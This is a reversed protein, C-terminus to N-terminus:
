TTATTTPRCPPSSRTSTSSATAPNPGSDNPPASEHYSLGQAPKRPRPLRPLLRQHPHRRDPRRLPHDPRGPRHRGLASPRHRPRLRHRRTRPHRATPHDRARNRLRRRRPLPAPTPPRPQAPSPLHHRLERHGPRPPRRQLRRRRGAPGDPRPRGHLLDHHPRPRTRGPRRRLTQRTRDRRRHRHDRRLTLQVPQTVPALGYGAIWTAYDAATMGDPVDAKVATFGIDAFDAFAQDFVEKSKDVKGDRAWYPIPNAAVRPRHRPATAAPSNQNAIM